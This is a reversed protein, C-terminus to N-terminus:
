VNPDHCDYTIINNVGLSELEQLAIACDLSEREKRRHQRSQYLLPMIVSIKSFRGNTASIVRKIDQYHEDPSMNHINGHFNYTINYNGVDSLIYLDKHMISENIYLKGEGNNFRSCTVQVLVDDDSNTIKKIHENIKKGLDKCNEFVIIKLNKQNIEM